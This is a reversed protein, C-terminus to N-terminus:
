WSGSSGGGGFSGGGGSFGGFSGGGFSSGGFGGSSRGGSLASWLLISGLGGGRGRGVSSIIIFIVVIIWFPFKGGEDEDNNKKDQYEGKVAQIIANLGATVGSYYDRERFYPAIENRIISSSLADTLVGELGYGVEIRIKKDSLSILLLVGNDKKSGIKNKEALEQSYMEIPYGNLSNIIILVIQTSTSDDLMKLHRNINDLEASSLTGTYDNAYNDVSYYKPQAYLISLVFLYLFVCKIKM